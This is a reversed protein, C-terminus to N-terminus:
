IARAAAAARGPTRDRDVTEGGDALGAPHPTAGTYSTVSSAGASTRRKGRTSWMAWGCAPRRPPRGRDVKAGIWNYDDLQWAAPASGHAGSNPTPRRANPDAPWANPHPIWAETAPTTTPNQLCAVPHARQPGAPRWRSAM